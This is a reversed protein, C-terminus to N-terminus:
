LSVDAEVENVTLKCDRLYTIMQKAIDEDEPLQLIMEGTAIGNIDKTDAHLINVPTKYRLIMNGIVPEFSSNESFVIRVLHKGEMKPVSTDEGFIMKKAVASEPNAFIKSVSGTEM